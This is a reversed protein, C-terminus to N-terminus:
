GSEGYTFADANSSWRIIESQSVAYPVVVMSEITGPWVHSSPPASHHSSGFAFTSPASIQWPYSGAPTTQDGRTLRGDTWNEWRGGNSEYVFAFAHSVSRGFTIWNDNIFDFNNTGSLHYWEWRGFTASYGITHQPGIAPGIKLIYRTGILGDHSARILVTFTEADPVHRISPNGYAHWWAGVSVTPDLDVPAQGSKTGFPGFTPSLAPKVLHSMTQIGHDQPVSSGANVQPAIYHYNDRLTRCV